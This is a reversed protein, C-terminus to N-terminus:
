LASFSRRTSAIPGNPKTNTSIPKLPRPSPSHRPAAAAKAREARRVALPDIKDALKQREVKARTRAEPLAFTRASGLGMWRTRHNLQFRLLYHANTKSEIELYLGRVGGPGGDLHRGKKGQRLLKAVKKVTLTSNSAM